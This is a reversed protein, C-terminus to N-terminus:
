TYSHVNLGLASNPVTLAQGSTAKLLGFRVRRTISYNRHKGNVVMALYTRICQPISQWLNNSNGPIPHSKIYVRSQTQFSM